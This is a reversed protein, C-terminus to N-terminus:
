KSGCVRARASLTSDPGSTLSSKTTRTRKNSHREHLLKWLTGEAEHPLIKFIEAHFRASAQHRFLCDSLRPLHLQRRIRGRALFGQGDDRVAQHRCQAEGVQLLFRNESKPVLTDLRSQSPPTHTEQAVAPTAGRRQPSDGFAGSFYEWIRDFPEECKTHMPLAHQWTNKVKFVVPQFINGGMYRFLIAQEISRDNPLVV